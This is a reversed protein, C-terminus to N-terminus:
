ELNYTSKLNRIPVNIAIIFTTLCFNFQKIKPRSKGGATSHRHPNKCAAEFSKHM